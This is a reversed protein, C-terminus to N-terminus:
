YTLCSGQDQTYGALTCDPYLSELTGLILAAIKEAAAREDEDVADDYGDTTSSDGHGLRRRKVAEPIVLSDMTTANFHRFTHVDGYDIGLKTLLPKLIRNLVNHLDVPTNNRSVFVPGSTRDGIHVALMEGLRASVHFM